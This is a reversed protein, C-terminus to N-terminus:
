KWSGYMEGIKEGHRAAFQSCVVALSMPSNQNREGARSTIHSGIM